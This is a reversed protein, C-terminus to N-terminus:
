YTGDMLDHLDQKQEQAAPQQQVPSTPEVPQAIPAVNAPTPQEAPAAETDVQQEVPKAEEPKPAPSADRVGPVAFPDSSASGAADGSTETDVVPAADLVPASGVTQIIKRAKTGCGQLIVDYRPHDLTSVEPYTNFMWGSFWDAESGNGKANEKVDLWAVDQGLQGAYDPLCKTLKIDLSGVTQVQGAVMILTQLRNTQKDLVTVRASKDTAASPVDTASVKDQASAGAMFTLLLGFIAAVAKTKIM